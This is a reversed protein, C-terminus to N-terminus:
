TSEEQHPVAPWYIGSHLDELIAQSVYGEIKVFHLGAHIGTDCYYHDTIVLGGSEDDDPM